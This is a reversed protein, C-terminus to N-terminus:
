GDRIRRPCSRAATAALDKGASRVCSTAGRRPIRRLTAALVRASAAHPSRGRHDLSRPCRDRGARCHSAAFAREAARSLQRRRASRAPARQALALAANSVQHRGPAALELEATFDRRRLSLALRRDRRRAAGAFSTVSGSGGPVSSGRARKSSPRQRPRCPASWWPCAPSRSARRRVPSRPWRTAWGTPTSSSSARSAASRRSWWTPRTSGVGSASRWSRSTWVRMRSSSSPRPPPSTSSARPEPGDRLEEVHEPRRRAPWPTERAGRLRGIRFTALTRSAPPAAGTSAGAERLLAESLLAEVRARSRSTFDRM